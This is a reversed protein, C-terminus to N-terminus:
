SGSKAPAPLAGPPPEPYDETPRMDWEVEFTVHLAPGAKPDAGAVKATLTNIGRWRGPNQPDPHMDWVQEQRGSDGTGGQSVRYGVLYLRTADLFGSAPPQATGEVWHAAAGVQLLGVTSDPKDAWDKPWSEAAKLFAKSTGSVSGVKVRQKSIRFSRVALTGTPPIPRATDIAKLLSEYDFMTLTNEAAAHLGELQGGQAVLAQAHKKMGTWDGLHAAVFFCHVLERTNLVPRASVAAYATRMKGLDLLRWALELRVGDRPRALDGGVTELLSWAQRLDPQVRAAQLYTQNKGYHLGRMMNTAWLWSAGAFRAREPTLVPDLSMAASWIPSGDELDKKGAPDQRELRAMSEAFAREDQAALTLTALALLVARM